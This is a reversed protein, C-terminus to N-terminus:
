IDFTLTVLDVNLTVAYRILLLYARLRCCIPQALEFKVPAVFNFCIPVARRLAAELNCHTQLQWM